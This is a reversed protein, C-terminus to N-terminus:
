HQIVSGEPLEGGGDLRVCEHLAADFIEGTPCTHNGDHPIATIIDTVEKAREPDELVRAVLNANLMGLARYFTAVEKDFKRSATATSEAM